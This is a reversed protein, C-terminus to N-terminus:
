LSQTARRWEPLSLSGERIEVVFQVTHALDIKVSQVNSICSLFRISDSSIESALLFPPLYPSPLILVHSLIQQSNSLLLLSLYSWLLLLLLMKLVLGNVRTCKWTLGTRFYFGCNGSAVAALQFLKGYLMWSSWEFFFIELVDCWSKTQVVRGLILAANSIQIWCKVM